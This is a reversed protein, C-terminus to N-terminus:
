AGLGEDPGWLSLSDSGRVTPPVREFPMKAPSIRNYLDKQPVSQFIGQGVTLDGHDRILTQDLNIALDSSVLGVRRVNKTPYILVCFQRLSHLPKM